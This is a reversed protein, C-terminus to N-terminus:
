ALPVKKNSGMISHNLKLYAVDIGMKNFEFDSKGIRLTEFSAFIRKLMFAENIRNKTSRM